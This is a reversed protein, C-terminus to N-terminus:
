CCSPSITVVAPHWTWLSHFIATSSQMRYSLVRPAALLNAAARWHGKTIKKHSLFSGTLILIQQRWSQAVKCSSSPYLIHAPPQIFLESIVLRAGVTARHQPNYSVEPWGWALSLCSFLAFFIICFNGNCELSQIATEGSPLTPFPTQKMVTKVRTENALNERIAEKCFAQLLFDLCVKEVDGPQSNM